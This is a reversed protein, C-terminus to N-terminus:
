RFGEEQNESEVSSQGVSHTQQESDGLISNISYGQQQSSAIQLNRKLPQVFSDIMNAYESNNEIVSNTSSISSTTPM